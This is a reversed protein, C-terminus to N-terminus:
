AASAADLEGTVEPHDPGLADTLIKRSRERAAQAPVSEGRAALVRALEKLGRGVDVHEPGLSNELISVSRRLVPEAEAFRGNESLLTGLGELGYGVYPHEPGVAGELIGLARDYLQRPGEFSGPERINALNILGVGVAPHELGLRAEWIAIARQYVPRAEDFREQDLYLVGLNNLSTAVRHHDPGLTRERIALSRLYLPEAEEFRLQDKYLIALNDLSTAFDQHEEGLARERIALSRLYLPEADDYRGQNWFVIGLGNLSEALDPHEPGLVKERIAISREYLPESEEFRGLQWYLYALHAQSEAVDAHDDGLLAGRTELSEQVLPLAQDFLGLKRYVEGITDMLRARILPQDALEVAIREAGGDLIERATANAAAAREGASRGDPDSLEFLGVMFDSVQRSLEVERNARAAEQNARAAERGIRHAQFGLALSTLVLFAILAAHLLRRRRRRPKDRIWQLRECLDVASPRRTPAKSKLRQILVGVDADIGNVPLTEAASVRALTRALGLDPPYAAEGTFIRQLLLGLSYMDSAATVPEGLVQEPSMYSPTGVFHGEQTQLPTEDSLEVGSPEVGSPEVDSMKGDSLELAGVPPPEGTVWTVAEASVRCALGFDLVKADGATTLMVNDPKLDRHVVGQEHAAALASAVQQAIKMKEEDGIAKEELAQTLGQGEILELVLIDSEEWEILDYIRCIHPHELRSLVRAERLLRARIDSKLRFKRRIAKLAVKRDLREDYAAYVDGMGGKGLFEFVRYHQVKLGMLSM